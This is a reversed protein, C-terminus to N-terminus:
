SCASVEVNGLGTSRVGPTTRLEPTGTQDKDAVMDVTFRSSAGPKVGFSRDLV